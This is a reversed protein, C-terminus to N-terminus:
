KTRFLDSMAILQIMTALGDGQQRVQWTIEDVASRDAFVLPRGLVYTTLKHVVARVFQDQRNELLFRKLGDMGDLKQENFLTSTADVRDEGRVMAVPGLARSALKAILAAPRAHLGLENRVVVERYPHPHTNSNDHGAGDM